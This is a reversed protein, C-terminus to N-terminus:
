FVPKGELKRVITYTDRDGAPPGWANFAFSLQAYAGVMLSPKLRIRTISNTGGGRKNNRIPSKPFSVTREPAHYFLGVGRPVRVSVAARTVIVGNDNYVEVWDNDRVGIRKADDINLWFPEVGRSLTLMILNDSYTTHIHWKGHPTICNLVLTNDPQATKEPM